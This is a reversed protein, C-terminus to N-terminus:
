NNKNIHEGKNDLIKLDPNTAYLLCLQNLNRMKLRQFEWKYYLTMREFGIEKVSWVSIQSSATTCDFRDGQRGVAVYMRVHLLM